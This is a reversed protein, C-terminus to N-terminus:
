KLRASWVILIQPALPLLQRVPVQFTTPTLAPVIVTLPAVSWFSESPVFRVIARTPLASVIMPSLPSMTRITPSPPAPPPSTAPQVFLDHRSLSLGVTGPVGDVTSRYM